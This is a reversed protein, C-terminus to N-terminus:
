PSCENLTALHPRWPGGRHRGRTRRSPPRRCWRTTTAADSPLSLLSPFALHQQESSIFNGAAAAASKHLDHDTSPIAELVPLQLDVEPLGDDEKVTTIIGARIKPAPNHDSSPLIAGSSSDFYDGLKTSRSESQLKVASAERRKSARESHNYTTMQQGSADLQQQVKGTDLMKLLISTRKRDLEEHMEVAPDTRRAKHSSSRSPAKTTTAAEHIRALQESSLIDSIRMSGTYLQHLHQLLRKQLSRSGLVEYALRSRDDGEFKLIYQKKVMIVPDKSTPDRLVDEGNEQSHQLGRKRDRVAEEVLSFPLNVGQRRRMMVQSSTSRETTAENSFSWTSSSIWESGTAMKLRQVRASSDGPQANDLQEREEEHVRGEEFLHNYVMNTPHGARSSGGPAAAAHARISSNKARRHDSRTVAASISSYREDQMVNKPEVYANKDCRAVKNLRDVCMAPFRQPSTAAVAEICCRVIGATCRRTMGVQTNQQQQQQQLGRLVNRREDDMSHDSLDLSGRQSSSSGIEDEHYNSRKKIREGNRRDRNAACRLATEDDSLQHLIGGGGSSNQNSKPAAASTINKTETKRRSGERHWKGPEPQMVERVVLNEKQESHAQRHKLPATDRHELASRKSSTKKVSIEQMREPSGQLVHCSPPPGDLSELAAKNDITSGAAVKQQEGSFSKASSAGSNSRSIICPTTSTTSIGYCGHRRVLDFVTQFPIMFFRNSPLLTIEPPPSGVASPCRQSIEGATAAEESKHSNSSQLMIEATGVPGFYEDIRGGAHVIRLEEARSPAGGMVRELYGLSIRCRRDIV